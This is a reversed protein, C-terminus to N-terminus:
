LVTGPPVCVNKPIVVIGDRVVHYEGEEDPRGVEGRIVCGDGIRANKDIIARHIRCERGIGYPIDGDLTPNPYFDQGLIVAESVQSGERVVSRIGVVSERIDARIIRCGDGLLTADLTSELVKASPLFRPRTFVRQSPDYFDFAADETALALNGRHFAGITGVDEWYGEFPFATIELTGVLDQFVDRGFDLKGTDRLVSVLTERDFCYTGMSALYLDEERGDLGLASRRRPGIRFRDLVAPDQPKEVFDIVRGGEDIGVLGLRPADRRGVPVVSVTAGAKSERHLAVLKSLDMKCLQDGSLILVQDYFPKDIRRLNRRIADATGEYWSDSEPTQEAALIQVFGDSFNDFAFARNVHTMLSASNYQTVVFIRRLGSNICNSLSIDILRFKAALPVAPKCRLKTLPYLRNGRGGGLIVALM